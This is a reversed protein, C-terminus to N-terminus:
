FFSGLSKSFICVKGIVDLAVKHLEKAFDVVTEGDAFDRLKRILLDASKNYNPM